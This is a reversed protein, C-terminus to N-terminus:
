TRIFPSLAFAGDEVVALDGRVMLLDEWSHEQAKLASIGPLRDPTFYIEVREVGEEGVVAGAVTGLAPPEGMAVLDYLRLWGDEVEAVVVTDHDPLYHLFSAAEGWLALDILFHDGSDAAAIRESIPRRSALLRRLLALDTGHHPDLRRSAAPVSTPCPGTFLCEPRPHFGFKRYFEVKESWLVTISWPGGDIWTLARELVRRGHGRGRHEPHVCVGHIAAVEVPRGEVWWRCPIVGAHAVLREDDEVVFPTSLAFWDAGWVLAQEIGPPVHPWVAGYLELASSRLIKDGDGSPSEHHDARHTSRDHNM